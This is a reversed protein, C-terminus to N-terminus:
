VRRVHSNRIQVMVAALSFVTPLLTEQYVLRHATLHNARLVSRMTMLETICDSIVLDSMWDSRYRGFNPSYVLNIFRGAFRSVIGILLVCLGVPSNCLFVDTIRVDTCSQFEVTLQRGEQLIGISTSPM